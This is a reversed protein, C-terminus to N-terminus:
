TVLQLPMQLLLLKVQYWGPKVDASIDEIRAFTLPQDEYYILVIDQITAM